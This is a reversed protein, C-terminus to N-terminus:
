NGRLMEELEEPLTVSLKCLNHRDAWSVIESIPVNVSFVKNCVLIESITKGATIGTVLILREEKGNM